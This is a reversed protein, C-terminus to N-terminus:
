DLGLGLLLQTALPDGAMEGCLGVWKGKPNATEITHRDISDGCSSVPKGSRCSKQEFSQDSTYIPYSQQHRHQFFRRLQRYARDNVGCIAGM